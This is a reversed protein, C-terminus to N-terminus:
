SGARHELGIAQQLEEIDARIGPDNGELSEMIDIMGEALANLKSQVATDARSQTNQLLAVLLYTIITTITNIVLQWTDINMFIFTPAWIVIMAVAAAFFWARSVVTAVASSFRDFTSPGNAQSPKLPEPHEDRQNM